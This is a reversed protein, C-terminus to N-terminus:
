LLRFADLGKLSRDFSITHTAGAARNRRALLCDSSTSV